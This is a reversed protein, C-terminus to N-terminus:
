KEFRFTEMVREVVADQDAGANELRAYGGLVILGDQHFGYSTMRTPHGQDNYTVVAKVSQDDAKLSFDELSQLKAEELYAMSPVLTDDFFERPTGDFPTILVILITNNRCNAVTRYTGDAEQFSLTLCVSASQEPGYWHHNDFVSTPHQKM